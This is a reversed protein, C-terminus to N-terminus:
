FRDSVCKALKRSQRSRLRGDAILKDIYSILVLGNLVAVGFLAIFGISAPVSLYMGRVWLAVVGGILAFPVNLIVLMAEKVSNFTATLLLFIILVSIPVVVSLKKMARQQNEFQGGWQIYYGPPLKIRQAIRRQAEAVFTGVDRNKVNCQVVIRRQAFERNIVDVGEGVQIQAVQSLPLSKGTSTEILINQLIQSYVHWRPPFKVRLAFRKRGDLVESVAKGIIATQVVDQIDSINVGYRAM